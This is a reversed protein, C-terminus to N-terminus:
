HGNETTKRYWGKASSVGATGAIAFFFFAVVLAPAFRFDGCCLSLRASGAFRDSPVSEREYVM